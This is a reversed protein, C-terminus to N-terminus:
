VECVRQVQQEQPMGSSGRPCFSTSLSISVSGMRNDIGVHAETIVRPIMTDGPQGTGLAVWRQQEPVDGLIEAQLTRALSPGNNQSGFEIQFEQQLEITSPDLGRAKLEALVEPVTIGPMEPVLQGSSRVRAVARNMLLLDGTVAV